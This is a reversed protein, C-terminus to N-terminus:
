PVSPVDSCHALRYTLCPEKRVLVVLRPNLLTPRLFALSKRSLIGFCAKVVRQLVTGVGYRSSRFFGWFNEIPLARISNCGGREVFYRQLDGYSRPFPETM